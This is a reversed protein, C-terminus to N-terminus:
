KNVKAKEPFLTISGNDKFPLNLCKFYKYAALFRILEVANRSSESSSQFSMTDTSIRFLENRDIGEQNCSTGYKYAAPLGAHADAATGLLYQM